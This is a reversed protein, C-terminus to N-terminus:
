SACTSGLSKARAGPKRDPATPRTKDPPVFAATRESHVVSGSSPHISVAPPPRGPRVSAASATAIPNSPCHPLRRHPSRHPIYRRRWQRCTCSTEVASWGSIGALELTSSLVLIPCCLALYASCWPSLAWASRTDSCVRGRTRFSPTTLRGGCTRQVRTHINHPCSHQFSPADTHDEVYNM